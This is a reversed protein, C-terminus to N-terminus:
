TALMSLLRGNMSLNASVISSLVTLNLLKEKMSGVALSVNLDMGDIINWVNASDQDFMGALLICSIQVTISVSYPLSNGYLKKKANAHSLISIIDLEWPIM